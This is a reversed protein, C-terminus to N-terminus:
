LVHGPRTLLSSLGPSMACSVSHQGPKGSARPEMGTTVYIPHLLAHRYDLVQSILFQLSAQAVHSGMESLGVRAQQLLSLPLCELRLSRGREWM